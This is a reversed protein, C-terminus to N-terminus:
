GDALMLQVDAPQGGAVDVKTAVPSASALDAVVLIGSTALASYNV